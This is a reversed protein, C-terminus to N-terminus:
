PNQLCPSIQIRSFSSKSKSDHRHASEHDALKILFHSVSPEEFMFFFSPVPVNGTSFIVKMPATFFNSMNKFVM